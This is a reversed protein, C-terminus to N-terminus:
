LALISNMVFLGKAWVETRPKWIASPLHMLYGKRQLGVNIEEQEDFINGDLEDLTVGYGPPLDGSNMMLELGQEFLSLGEEDFPCNSAPAPVAEHRINSDIVKLGSNFNYTLCNFLRRVKTDFDDDEEIVDESGLEEMESDNVDDSGLDDSGPEKDESSRDYTGEDDAQDPDEEDDLVPEGTRQFDYFAYIEEETLGDCEDDDYVGDKL